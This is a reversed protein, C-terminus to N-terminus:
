GSLVVLNSPSPEHLYLHGASMVQNRGNYKAAYLARDAAALLSDGDPNDVSLTAVGFSATVARCDWQAAEISLRCREAAAAASAQSTQPLIVVFEEGGYRAAFDGPRLAHKLLRAVQKLVTDGSPHGFTDNYQKFHDVDLLVLSFSGGQRRATGYEAALQEQFARHNKLGTLGDTTALDCLERNAQELEQKQFELITAYERIRQEAEKRKTLDHWVSLMAREGGLMVPTVIVETPFETGDRRAHVAEFRHSGHAQVAAEVEQRMESVRENSPPQLMFSAPQRGILDSKSGCRLMQVAAQNCDIIGKPGVFFHSESSHDFLVRFREEVLVRETIDMMTGAWRTLHGDDDFVPEGVAHCWRIAGGPRVVRLDIAFPTMDAQSQAVIAHYAELDDPHYRSLVLEHTLPADARLELLRYMEDSFTIKGSVADAEWSGIQAIRQAEALRAESRRVAEEARRQATMDRCIAAVGVMEGSPSCVPSFTLVLNILQGDKRQRRVELNERTEGQRLAQVLSGFIGAEGPLALVSMHQGIIESEGYGFLREASANWSVLTGDLTAALVADHSSAVIAALRANEEEAQKRETIDM